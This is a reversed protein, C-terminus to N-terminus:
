GVAPTMRAIWKGVVDFEVNIREGPTLSHLRTRVWTHPIIFCRVLSREDDLEAATLSIGDLCISGKDIVSLITEEPLRLEILHDNEGTPEARVLEATTDVHGQVIHGSLREGLQMARELNVISGTKLGGLNTVKLTQALLDFSATNADTDTTTVTLCCGNVAVSEGEALDAAQFGDLAVTIRGGGESSTIATVTGLAEIIGTFM